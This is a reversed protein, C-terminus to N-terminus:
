PCLGLQRVAEAANDGGVVYSCRAAEEAAGQPEVVDADELRRLHYSVTGLTVDPVAPQLDTASAPEGRHWLQRVLEARVPHALVKELAEDRAEAM